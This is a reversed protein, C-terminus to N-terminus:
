VKATPFVMKKLRSPLAETRSTREHPTIWPEIRPGIRYTIYAEGRESVALTDFKAFSL